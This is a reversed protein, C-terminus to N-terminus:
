YSPVVQIEVLSPVGGTEGDISVMSFPVPQVSFVLAM